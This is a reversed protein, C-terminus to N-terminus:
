ATSKCRTMKITRLNYSLNTRVMVNKNQLIILVYKGCICIVTEIINISCISMMLRQRVQAKFPTCKRPLSFWALWPALLLDSRFLWLGRIRSRFRCSWTYEFRLYMQHQWWAVIDDHLIIQWTPFSNRM